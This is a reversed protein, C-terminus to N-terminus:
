GAGGIGAPLINIYASSHGCIRPALQFDNCGPPCGPERNERYTDLGADAPDTRMCGSQAEACVELIFACHGSGIIVPDYDVSTKSVFGRSCDDWKKCDYRTCHGLEDVGSQNTRNGWGIGHICDPNGNYAWEGANDSCEGGCNAHGCTNFPDQWDIGGDEPMCTPFHYTFGGEFQTCFLNNLNYTCGGDNGGPGIEEPDRGIAHNPNGKIPAGEYHRRWLVPHAVSEMDCPTYNYSQGDSTHTYWIFLPSECENPCVQGDDTYDDTYDVIGVTPIRVSGSNLSNNILGPQGECHARVVDKRLGCSFSMEYGFTLRYVTDHDLNPALAKVCTEQGITTEISTTNSGSFNPGSFVVTKRDDDCPSFLGYDITEAYDNVCSNGAEWEECNPLNNGCCSCESSGKGFLLVPATCSPCFPFNYSVGLLEQWSCSINGNMGIIRYPAM